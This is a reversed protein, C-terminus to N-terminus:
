YQKSVQCSCRPSCTITGGLSLLVAVMEDLPCAEPTLGAGDMRPLNRSRSIRGSRSFSAAHSDSTPVSSPALTEAPQGARFSTSASQQLVHQQTSSASSQTCVDITPHSASCGAGFERRSPYVSDLAANVDHPYRAAADQALALPVEFSLSNADLTHCVSAGGFERCLGQSITCSVSPSSELQAPTHELSGEDHENGDFVDAVQSGGKEEDYFGDQNKPKAATSVRM